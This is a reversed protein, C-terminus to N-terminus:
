KAFRTKLSDYLTLLIYTDSLDPFFDQITKVAPNVNSSAENKDVLENLTSLTSLKQKCSPTGYLEIAEYVANTYFMIQQTDLLGTTQQVTDIVDIFSYYDEFAALFHKESSLLSCIQVLNEVQDNENQNHLLPDICCSSLLENFLTITEYKSEEYIDSLENDFLLMDIIQEYSYINAPSKIELLKKPRNETYNNKTHFAYLMNDIVDKIANVGVKLDELFKPQQKFINNIMKSLLEKNNIAYLSCIDLIRPIDFIYNDYIADAFGEPTFYNTPSEKHTSMRLITMFMLRNVNQQLSDKGDDLSVDTNNDIFSRQPRPAYRLYSDLLVHFDKNFAVECWFQRHTLQLLWKLDNSIFEMRETWQEIESKNNEDSPSPTYSVFYHNEIWSSHLAPVREDIVGKRNIIFQQDLPLPKATTSM